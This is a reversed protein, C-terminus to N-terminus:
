VNEIWPREELFWPTYITSRGEQSSKMDAILEDREVWKLEEVEEEQMKLDSFDSLTVAYMAIFENDKYCRTENGVNYVFDRRFLKVARVLRLQSESVALNLEEKLGRVAAQAQTEGPQLHEACSLDWCLPAIRKNRSRRQLLLKGQSDWVLVHVAAHLLGEMHVKLRPEERLVTVGDESLVSFLEEDSAVREAFSGTNLSANMAICRLGLFLSKFSGRQLFLMAPSILSVDDVNQLHVHHFPGHTQSWM